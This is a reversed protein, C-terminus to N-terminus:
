LRLGSVGPEKKREKQRDTQRDTKREKEREFDAFGTFPAPASSLYGAWQAHEVTDGPFSCAHAGCKCVVIIVLCSM